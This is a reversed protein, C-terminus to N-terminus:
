DGTGEGGVIVGGVGGAGGARGGGAGPGATVKTFWALTLNKVTTVNAQTLASYRKGSYDGNYTPWSDRLPKLIDAPALGKGQGELLGPLAVFVAAFAVKNILRIFAPRM